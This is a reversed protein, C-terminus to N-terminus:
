SAAQLQQLLIHVDEQCRWLAQPPAVPDHFAVKARQTDCLWYFREAKHVASAVQAILIEKGSTCRRRTSAACGRKLWMMLGRVVFSWTCVKCIPRTFVVGNAPVDDKYKVGVTTSPAVGDEVPPMM